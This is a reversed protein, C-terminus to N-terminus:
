KCLEGNTNNRNSSLCRGWLLLSREECSSSIGIMGAELLMRADRRAPSLSVPCVVKRMNSVGIALAYSIHTSTDFMM